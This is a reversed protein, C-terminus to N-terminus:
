GKKISIHYQVQIQPNIFVPNLSISTQLLSERVIGLQLQMQLQKCAGMALGVGTYFGQHIDIFSSKQCDIQYSLIYFPQVRVVSDRMLAGRWSLALQPALAGQLTREIGCGFSVGLGGTSFGKLYCLSVVQDYRHWSGGVGLLTQARFSTSIAFLLFFLLRPLM